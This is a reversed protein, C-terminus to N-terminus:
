EKIKDEASWDSDLELEDTAGYDDMDAGYARRFDEMNKYTTNPLTNLREMFMENEVDNDRAFDIIGQRNLPFQMGQLETDFDFSDTASPNPAQHPTKVNQPKTIETRAM